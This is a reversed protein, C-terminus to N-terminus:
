YNYYGVNVPRKEPKAQQAARQPRVTAPSEVSKLSRRDAHMARHRAFGLSKIFRGCERCIPM